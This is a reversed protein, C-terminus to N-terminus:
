KKSVSQIEFSIVSHDCTSSLPPHVSYNLMKQKAPTNSFLLDLINGKVHTAEDICQFLCNTICFNLFNQHALDGDTTVLNWNINPLNFDGFIYCPITNLALSRLIHCLTSISATSSSSVPPVYFCLFRCSRVGNFLDICVFEMSSGNSNYQICSKLEVHEIRLHSKYFLLM